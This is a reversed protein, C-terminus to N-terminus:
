KVSFERLTSRLSGLLIRLRYSIKAGCARSRVKFYQRNRKSHKAETKATFKYNKLPLGM